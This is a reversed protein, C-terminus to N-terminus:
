VEFVREMIEKATVVATGQKMVVIGAAMNALYMADEPAVQAALAAALMAVVTDGAGSVDFVERAYTPMQCVVNGDCSLLMGDKGLTIVLYKPHYRQFIKECILEKPFHRHDEPINALAFAEQRNPTMLTLYSFNLEHSPKPDWALIKHYEQAYQALHDVISQDVAGKAYDSIVIADVCAMARRLSEAMASHAFMKRYRSPLDERDLRCLQQQRAVIRTKLITQVDPVSSGDVVTIRAQQLLQEVRMGYFDKGWTGLLSTQVGLSALNHAVNAAAGLVYHEEKVSIVPVPAEPSIRFVDGSIYHDLMVDGVVLMHMESLHQFVKSLAEV